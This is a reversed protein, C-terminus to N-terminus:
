IDIYTDELSKRYIEGLPYIANAAEQLIPNAIEAEYILQKERLVSPAGLNM